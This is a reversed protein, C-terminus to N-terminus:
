GTTRRQVFTTLTSKFGVFGNHKKMVVNVNCDTVFMFDVVVGGIMVIEILLYRKSFDFQPRDTWSIASSIM